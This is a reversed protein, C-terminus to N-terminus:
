LFHINKFPKKKETLYSIFEQTVKEPDSQRPICIFELSQRLLGAYFKQYVKFEPSIVVLFIKNELVTFNNVWSLRARNISLFSWYSM